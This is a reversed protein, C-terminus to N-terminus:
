GLRTADDRAYRSTREFGTVAGAADLKVEYVALMDNDGLRAKAEVVDVRVIWEEGSKQCAAVTDVPLGSMSTVAERAVGMADMFGIPAVETHEVAPAVAAQVSM